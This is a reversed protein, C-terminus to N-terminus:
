HKTSFSCHYWQSFPVLLYIIRILLYYWVGHENDYYYNHQNRHVRTVHYALRALRAQPSAHGTLRDQQAQM